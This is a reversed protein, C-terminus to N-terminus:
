GYDLLTLNFERTKGIPTIKKIFDWLKKDTRARARNSKIDFVRELIRFINTDLVPVNKGFALYLVSNAIYQGVGPLSILEEVSDPIKGNHKEIVIIAWKKYSEARKHELGLPTILEKIEKVSAKALDKPSPFRNIFKQILDQVQKVTTKQLMMESVLIHYPNKTNRWFLYDRKNNEYWKM